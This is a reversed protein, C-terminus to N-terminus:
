AVHFDCDCCWVKEMEKKLLELGSSFSAYVMFAPTECLEILKKCGELTLKYIVQEKKFRDRIKCPVFNKKEDDSLFPIISNNITRCMKWNTRGFMKGIQVTDIYKEPSERKKCAGQSCSAAGHQRQEPKSPSKTPDDGSAQEMGKEQAEDSAERAAPRPLLEDGGFLLAAATQFGAIFGSEEYEVATNMMRDFLQEQLRVNRPFESELFRDFELAAREAAKTHRPSDEMRAVYDKFMQVIETSNMRKPNFRAREM